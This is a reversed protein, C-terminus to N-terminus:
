PRYTWCRRRMDFDRLERKLAVLHRSDVHGLRGVLLGAMDNAASDAARLTSRADIMALRVADFVNSM